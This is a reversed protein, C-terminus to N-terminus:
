VDIRPEMDFYDRIAPFVVSYWDDDVLDQVYYVQKAQSAFIFPESQIDLGTSFRNLNIQTIGFRELTRIGTPKVWECKFLVM